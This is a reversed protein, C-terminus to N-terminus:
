IGRDGGGPGHEGSCAPCRTGWVSVGAAVAVAEGRPAAAAAAAVVPAASAPASASGRSCSRWPRSTGPARPRWCSRSRGWPRRPGPARAVEPAPGRRAPPPAHPPRSSLPTTHAHCSPVSPLLLPAEHLGRGGLAARPGEAASTKPPDLSTEGAPGPCRPQELGTDQCPGPTLLAAWLSATRDPLAPGLVSGRLAGVQVAGSSHRCARGRADGRPARLQADDPPATPASNAQCCAGGGFRRGRLAYNPHAASDSSDYCCVGGAPSSSAMETMLLRRRMETAM